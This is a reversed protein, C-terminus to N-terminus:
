PIRYGKHVIRLLELADAYDAGQEWWMKFLRNKLRLNIQNEIIEQPYDSELLSLM